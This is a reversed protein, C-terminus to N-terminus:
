IYELICNFTAGLMIPLVYVIKSKSWHLIIAFIILLTGFIITQKKLEASVKSSSDIFLHLIYVLFSLLSTLTLFLKVQNLYNKLINDIHKKEVNKNKEDKYIFFSVIHNFLSRYINVCNKVLDIVCFRHNRWM